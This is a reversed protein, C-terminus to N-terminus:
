LTLDDNELLDLLKNSGQRNDLLQSPELFSYEFNQEWLFAIETHLSAARDFEFNIYDHFNMKPVGFLINNKIYFIWRHHHYGCYPLDSKNEFKTLEAYKSPMSIFGAKGVMNIMKCVLQPSNIDELTHSCIVFDFKGNKEVDNLILDWEKTDDINIKFVQINVSIKNIDSPDVFNDVIHTIWESCWPNQAGGIDLIRYNKKNKDFKEELYEFAFNYNENMKSINKRLIM